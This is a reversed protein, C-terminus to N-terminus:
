LPPLRLRGTCPMRHAPGRRSGAPRSAPLAATFLSALRDTALEQELESLQTREEESLAMPNERLADAPVAVYDL